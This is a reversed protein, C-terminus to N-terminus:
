IGGVFKGPNLLRQPDFQQKLKHMMAIAPPSGCWREPAPAAFPWRLLVVMGGSASLRSRLDEVLPAVFKPEGTLQVTTIGVAEAVCKAHLASNSFGGLIAPLQSPLSTIKLVATSSDTFLRDREEWVDSTSESLLVEACMAALRKADHELAEPSSAFRVDLAVDRGDSRLQLSQLSTASERLRQMLTGLEQPGGVATWTQTHAELPHLRFNVETIVGLTGFSGILLKPLDYGAVNKVVKGGSRAITGDALVITMGIVLDRLSGYKTRLAGSDNVALVGGVTARNRMLPDLAVQQGHAGLAEEMQQWPTGAGVTATLDQWVHERIGSIRDMQLRVGCQVPNGWELKSGGGSATATAGHKACCRLVAATEDTSAPSVVLSAGDEVAYNAGVVSQLESLIPM